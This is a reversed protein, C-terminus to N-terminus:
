VNCKVAVDLKEELDINAACNILMDISQVLEARQSPTLGLNARM